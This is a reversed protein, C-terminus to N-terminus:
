QNKSRVMIEWKGTEVWQNLWCIEGLLRCTVKRFFLDRTALRLVDANELVTSVLQLPKIMFPDLHYVAAPDQHYAPYQMLGTVSYV